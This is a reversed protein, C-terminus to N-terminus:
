EGKRFNKLGCGHSSDSKNTIKKGIITETVRRSEEEGEELARKLIELKEKLEKTARELKMKDDNSANKTLESLPQQMRANILANQKMQRERDSSDNSLSYTLRPRPPNQGLELKPRITKQDDRVSAPKAPETSPAIKSEFCGNIESLWWGFEVMADEVKKSEVVAMVGFYMTWFEDRYNAFALYNHPRDKTGRETLTKVIAGACHCATRYREATLTHRYRVTDDDFLKRQAPDARSAFMEKLKQAIELVKYRDRHQDKSSVSEEVDIRNTISDYKIGLTGLENAYFKSDDVEHGEVASEIRWRAADARPYNQSDSYYVCYEAFLRVLAVYEKLRQRARRQKMEARETSIKFLYGGVIGVMGMVFLVLVLSWIVRRSEAEQRHLTTTHFVYDIEAQNRARYYPADEFVVAPGETTVVAVFCRRIASGAWEIRKGVSVLQRKVFRIVAESLNPRVPEGARWRTVFERFRIREQLLDKLTDWSDLLKESRLGVQGLGSPGNSVRMVGLELLQELLERARRPPELVQFSEPPGFYLTPQNGEGLRITRIIIRRAMTRDEDSLTALWANTAEIVRNLTAADFEALLVQERRPSKATEQTRPPLQITGVWYDILGQAQRRDDPDDLVTGTAAAARLFDGIRSLDAESPPESVEELLAGHAQQLATISPFSDNLPDHPTM